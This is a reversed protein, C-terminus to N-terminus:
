LGLKGAVEMLEEGVKSTGLIWDGSGIYKM